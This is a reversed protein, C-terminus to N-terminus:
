KGSISLVNCVTVVGALWPQGHRCSGHLLYHICLGLACSRPWFSVSITKLGTVARSVDYWHFDLCAGRPTAQRGMRDSQPGSAAMWIGKEKGFRDRSQEARGSGTSSVQTRIPGLPRGLLVIYFAM